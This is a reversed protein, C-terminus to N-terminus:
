EGKQAKLKEMATYYSEKFIKAEKSDPDLGEKKLIDDINPVYSIKQQANLGLEFFHKAFAIEFDPNCDVKWDVCEENDELLFTQGDKRYMGYFKDIEEDLDVEKAKLIDLLSLVENYAEEKCRTEM